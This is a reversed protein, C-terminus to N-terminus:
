VLEAAGVHFLHAVSSEIIERVEEARCRCELQAAATTPVDALDVHSLQRPTVCHVRRRPGQQLQEPASLTAVPFEIPVPPTPILSAAAALGGLRRLDSPVIRRGLSIGLTRAGNPGLETRARFEPFGDNM